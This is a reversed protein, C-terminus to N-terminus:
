ARARFAEVLRAGARDSAIEPVSLYEIARRRLFAVPLDASWDPHYESSITAETVPVFPRNETGLAVNLPSGESEEDLHFIGQVILPGVGAIGRERRKPVWSISRDGDRTPEHPVAVLIRDKEVRVQGLKLPKTSEHLSAAGANRLTVVSGFNNFIDLARTFPSSVLGRVIRNPLYVDIIVDV